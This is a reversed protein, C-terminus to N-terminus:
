RGPQRRWIQYINLGKKYRLLDYFLIEDPIFRTMEMGRKINEVDFTTKFIKLGEDFRPDDASLVQATGKMQLCRFMKKRAEQTNHYELAVRANKKMQGLKRTGIESLAYMIRNEPDLAFDITTVFPESRKFFLLRRSSAVTALTCTQREGFFATIEKWVEDNSLGGSRKVYLQTASSRADARITHCSFCALTEIEPHDEPMETGLVLVPVDEQDDQDARAAPGYLCVACAILGVAFLKLNLM